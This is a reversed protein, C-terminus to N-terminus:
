GVRLQRATSTCSCSRSRSRALWAGLAMTLSLSRAQHRHRDRVPAPHVAADAVGRAVGVRERRHRTGEAATAHGAPLVIITAVLLMASAAVSYPLSGKALSVIWPVFPAGGCLALVVIAMMVEDAFPLVSAVGILLAPVIVFTSILMFVATETHARLPGSISQRTVGLGQGLSALVVFLLGFCYISVVLPPIAAILM